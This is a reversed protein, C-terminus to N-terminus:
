EFISRTYLWKNKVIWLTPEWIRKKMAPSASGIMWCNKDCSDVKLRISDAKQSSWINEFSMDKLNGMTEDMVNCPKINGLPDLFFIDKGVECKLCRKKNYIFDILGKNFYARFWNKPRNSKLLEQILKKFENAVSEKDKIENDYKHFYYSNHVVATAFEMKLSKALNFLKLLDLYNLDSVTIGFGIDKVGLERLSLLTKLGREFGNKLGRIEDNVEPLGEISVRFGVDPHSKALSVVRDTFFGNTSIVIRKTKEKIINVIKELDQRIFPEGGTINIFSLGSPIKSIVDLTIEEEKKTPFQWTNCMKCRANCRYTVGIIAEM